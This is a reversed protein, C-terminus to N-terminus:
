SASIEINVQHLNVTVPSIDQRINWHRYTQNSDNYLNYMINSPCADTSNIKSFYSDNWNDLIVPGFVVNSSGLTIDTIGYYSTLNVSSTLKLTGFGNSSVFNHQPSASVNVAWLDLSSCNGRTLSYSAPTPSWSSSSSSSDSYTYANRAIQTGNPTNVTIDVTGIGNPPIVNFFTDTNNTINAINVVTNGFTVNGSTIDLMGTFNSGSISVLTSGGPGIDPIINTITTSYVPFATQNLKYYVAGFSQALTRLSGSSNIENQVDTMTYYNLPTSIVGSKTVNVYGYQWTYGQDQWFNSVPEYSVNVITGNVLSVASANTLNLVYVPTSENQVQLTGSSKIQNVLTDGGGLQVPESFVLGDQHSSVAQDIDSSFHVFATEVNHLHDVEASEKMSPVYIANWISYFTVIAALILMVAIVPAIADDRM